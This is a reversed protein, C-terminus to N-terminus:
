IHILSLVLYFNLPIRLKQKNRSQTGLKTPMEFLREARENSITGCFQANLTGSILWLAVYLCLEAWFFFQTLNKM